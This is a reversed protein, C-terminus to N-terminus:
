LRTLIERVRSTREQAATLRDRTREVVEPPAKSLFNGNSLQGQLRAVHSTLSALEADLRKREADLDISDGLSLHVTGHELVQTVEGDAAETPADVLSSARLSGIGAGARIFASEEDM